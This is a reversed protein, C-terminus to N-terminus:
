LGCLVSDGDRDRGVWGCQQALVVELGAGRMLQVREPRRGSRARLGWRDTAACAGGGLQGGHDLRHKATDAVHTM